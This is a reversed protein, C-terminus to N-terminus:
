PPLLAKVRFPVPVGAMRGADALCVLVQYEAGTELSALGAGTGPQMDEFRLPSTVSKAVFLAPASLHDAGGPLIWVDYKQGPKDKSNWAVAAQGGHVRKRRPPAARNLSNKGGPLLPKQGPRGDRHAKPKIFAKGGAVVLVCRFGNNDNRNMPHDNNRYSSRLNVRDNNNWSGGRLVRCQGAPCSRGCATWRNDPRGERCCEFTLKMLFIEPRQAAWLYF